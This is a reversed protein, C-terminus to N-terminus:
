NEDKTLNFEKIMALDMTASRGQTTLYNGIMVGNAGAAFIWSQYDRLTIERGGCITIDKEPHVYRFLAISKLAEMPPLLPMNEMRTGALPNLFNLPIRDVALEKLTFALEVRQEWTEGLGLIGGSCIKMGAAQVHAITQLDEDYEHTTCINHFFSRATELNHHFTTVGSQALRQAMSANLMGTSACVALPTERRIITAARCIRSLEEDNLQSGSTVIGFKGAGAATMNKAAAVLEDITMLPYNSINTQHHVSQPCFACNEPCSGSKANVISCTFASNKKFKRRISDAGLILELTREAPIAFLECTEESSLFSRGEEVIKEAINLPQLDFMIIIRSQKNERQQSTTISKAFVLQM